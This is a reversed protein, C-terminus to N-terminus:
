EGPFFITIFPGVDLFDVQGDQNIDAEAQFDRTAFISIFPGVDLFDVEGDLNVDGLITVPEFVEFAVSLGYFQTDLSIRDPNDVGSIRVFYTGADLEVSSLIEDDGFDGSDSTALVTQGDTALLELTLNVRKSTDFLIQDDQDQGGAMYSEGLTDLVVSVSGAEVVTFSFVDRDTQDDISIFDVEDPQIFLRTPKATFLASTGTRHAAEGLVVSDGSLLVGLETATSATDNGLGTELIDGYGRQVSLIDHYQPGDFSLDISPELLQRTDSSVVHGAVSFFGLAHGFEHAIVNRLRLSNNSLNSYFNDDTDVTVDGDTPFSAFALVGGDGDILRGGFRIDGRVGLSGSARFFRSSFRRGDDNPEFELTLGSLEGWRGIASQLIPQYDDFGGGYIGDLFSVLDSGTGNTLTTRDPAISWTLVLPDGQNFGQSQRNATNGSWRRIGPPQAIAVQTTFMLFVLLPFISRKLM